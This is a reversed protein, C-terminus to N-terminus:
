NLTIRVCHYSLNKKIIKKKDFMKTVKLHLEVNLQWSACVMRQADNGGGSGGGDLFVMMDAPLAERARLWEHVGPKQLPKLFCVVRFGETGRTLWRPKLPNASHPTRILGRNPKM